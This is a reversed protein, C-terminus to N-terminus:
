IQIGNKIHENLIDVLYKFYNLQQEKIQSYIDIIQTKEGSNHVLALRYFIFAGEEDGCGTMQFIAAHKLEEYKYVTIINKLLLRKHIISLSNSELKLIDYFNLRIIFFVTVGGLLLFFLCGAITGFINYKQLFIFSFLGLICCFILSLSIILCIYANYEKIKIKFTNSDVAVIRNKCCCGCDGYGSQYVGNPPPINNSKDDKGSIPYFYVDENKSNESGTLTEM